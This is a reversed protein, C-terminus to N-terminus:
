SKSCYKVRSSELIIDKSVFYFFGRDLVGFYTLIYLDIYFINQAFNSINIRM